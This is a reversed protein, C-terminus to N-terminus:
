IDQHVYLVINIILHKDKLYLMSHLTNSVDVDYMSVDNCPVDRPELQIPAPAPAPAGYGVSAQFGVLVAIPLMPVIHMTQSHRKQSDTKSGELDNDSHNNETCAQPFKGLNEEV